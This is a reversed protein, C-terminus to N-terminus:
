YSELYNLKLKKKFNSLSPAVPRKEMLPALRKDLEQSHLKLKEELTRCWEEFKKFKEESKQELKQELIAVLEDKTIGSMKPCVFIVFLVFCLVLVANRVM